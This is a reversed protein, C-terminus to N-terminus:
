KRTSILCELNNLIEKKNYLSVHRKFKIGYKFHAEFYIKELIVSKIWSFFSVFNSWSDIFRRLSDFMLKEEFPHADYFLLAAATILYLYTFRWWWFRKATFHQYYTKFLIPYKKITESKGNFLEANSLTIRWTHDLM